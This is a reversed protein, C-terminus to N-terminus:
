VEEKREEGGSRGEQRTLVNRKVDRRKEEDTKGLKGWENM